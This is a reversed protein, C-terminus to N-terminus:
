SPTIKASWPATCNLLGSHDEQMVYTGAKVTMAATGSYEKASPLIASEIEAVIPGDAKTTLFLSFDCSPTNNTIDWDVSYSGAALKFSKSVGTSSVGTVNIPAGGAHAQTPPATGIPALTVPPAPVPLGTTGTNNACGALALVLVISCCTRRV